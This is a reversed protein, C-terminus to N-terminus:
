IDFLENVSILMCNDSIKEKLKDCIMQLEFLPTIIVAEIQPLSEEPRFVKYHHEVDINKLEDIIYGVKIREKELISILHKGIQGYGYIAVSKIHYRQFFCKVEVKGEYYDLLKNLSAARQRSNGLDREVHFDISKTMAKYKNLIEEGENDLRKKADERADCLAELKGYQEEEDPELYMGEGWENWANFFVFENNFAYSKLYLEEMNRKFKDKDYGEFAIGSICGRRPTDDYDAFGGFYIKENDRVKFELIADWTRDFSVKKIGNEYNVNKLNWVRHPAHVVGADMGPFIRDSFGLIYPSEIGYDQSIRKWYNVMFYFCSVAQPNYFAFVPHDDIKVYRSDLFFPLLYEFHKRWEEERGFSQKLLIGAKDPIDNTEYKDSWSNGTLNSWTRVWSVTDWCFFFNMNVDNWKLLNEAPKELIKCGNMFYYHYMCVADIGYKKMLNAQWIMTDKKMLDYYNGNLPHRPQKQGLYYSEAQKVAVWDTFGKGWWKDNEPVTHYQPLYMAVTKCYARSM